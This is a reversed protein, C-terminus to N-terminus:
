TSAPFSIRASRWRILAEFGVLKRDPLTMIPQLYPGLENKEVAEVIEQAMRLEQLAIKKQMNLDNLFGDAKDVQALDEKAHEVVGAEAAFEPSVYRWKRYRNVLLSMLLGVLPDLRLISDRLICPFIRFVECDETAIATASRKGSGILAAEGFVEGEGLRVLPVKNGDKVVSIEVEGKEIIYACNRDDGEHFLTMGKQYSCRLEQLQLSTLPIAKTQSKM